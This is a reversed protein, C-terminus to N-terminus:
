KISVETLAEAALSKAYDPNRCNRDLIYIMDKLRPDIAWAESVIMLITCLWISQLVLNMARNNRDRNQSRFRLLTKFLKLFDM